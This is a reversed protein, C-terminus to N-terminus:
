SRKERMKEYLHQTSIGTEIRNGFTDIWCCKADQYMGRRIDYGWLDAHRDMVVEIENDHLILGYWKDTGNIWQLANEISERSCGANKLYQEIQQYKNM